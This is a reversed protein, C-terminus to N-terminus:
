LCCCLGILVLSTVPPVAVPEPSIEELKSVIQGLAIYRAFCSGAGIGVAALLAYPAFSGLLTEAAPMGLARAIAIERARQHAYVFACVAAVTLFLAGYLLLGSLASGKLSDSAAAFTEWDREIFQVDLGLELLGPRTETLFAEKDAPSNLLFSYSSDSIEGDGMGFGEPMVSDPIYLYNTVSTLQVPNASLTGYIGVISLTLTKTPYTDYSDKFDSTIYGVHTEPIDRLTLTIEDGLSLGRTQAFGVHVVCVPNAAAQDEDDLWRGEELYYYHSSEQVYPMKRMDATGVVMMSHRNLEQIEEEDGLLSPLLERGEAETLFWRGGPEARRLTYDIDIGTLYSNKHYYARVLYVGGAELAADELAFAEDGDDAHYMLLRMKEGVREPYGYVAETVRFMYEYGGEASREKSLLEAYALIESVNVGTPSGDYGSSNGDIDANYLGDLVGTVYRRTDSFDVYASSSILEAGAGVDGDTSVLQGIPRYYDNLADVQSSVASYETFKEGVGLAAAGLLLVILVAALPRRLVSRWFLKRKM